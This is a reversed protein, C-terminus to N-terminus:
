GITSVVHPCTSQQGTHLSAHQVRGGICCLRQTAGAAPTCISFLGCKRVKEDCHGAGCMRPCCVALLRACLLQQTAHEGMALTMNLCKCLSSFVATRAVDDVLVCQVCVDLLQLESLTLMSNDRAAAMRQVSTILVDNTITLRLTPMYTAREACVLLAYLSLYVTSADIAISTETYYQCVLHLLTAEVAARVGGGAVHPWLTLADDVSVKRADDMIFITILEAAYDRYVNLDGNDNLHDV